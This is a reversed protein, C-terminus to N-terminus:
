RLCPRRSDPTTHSSSGKPLRRSSAVTPSALHLPKTPIRAGLSAEESGVCRLLPLSVCAPLNIHVTALFVTATPTLSNVFRAPSATRTAFRNLLHRHPLAQIHVLPPCYCHEVLNARPPYAPRNFMAGCASQRSQSGLAPRRSSAVADGGSGGPRGCGGQQCM